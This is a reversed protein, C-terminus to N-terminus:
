GVVSEEQILDCLIFFIDTKVESANHVNNYFNIVNELISNVDVKTKILSRYNDILILKLLKTLYKMKDVSIYNRNM